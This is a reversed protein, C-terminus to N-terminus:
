LDDKKSIAKQEKIYLIASYFHASMYGLYNCLNSEYIRLLFRHLISNEIESIDFTGLLEIIITLKEGADAEFKTVYCSNYFNKLMKPFNSLDESYLLKTLMSISVLVKGLQPKGSPCKELKRAINEYLNLNRNALNFWLNSVNTIVSYIVENKKASILKYDNYYSYNITKEYKKYTLFEIKKALYLDFNNKHLHKIVKYFLAVYLEQPSSEIIESGWFNKEINEQYSRVFKDLTKIDYIKQYFKNCFNEFYEPSFDAIDDYNRTVPLMEISYSKQTIILIFLFIKILKDL